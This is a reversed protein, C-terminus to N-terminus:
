EDDESESVVPRAAAAVQKRAGTNTARSNKKPEASGTKWEKSRCVALDAEDLPKEVGDVMKGVIVKNRPGQVFFNTGNVMWKKSSKDQSVLIEGPKAAASKARSKKAPAPAAVPEPESEEESKDSESVAPAPAAAVVTSVAPAAAARTAANTEAAKRNWEAKQAESLAKWQPGVAEFGVSKNETRLHKSFM